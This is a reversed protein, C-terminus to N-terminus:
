RRVADCAPVFAVAFLLVLAVLSTLVLTAITPPTPHPYPM